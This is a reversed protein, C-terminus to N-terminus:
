TFHLASTRGAGGGGGCRPRPGPGFVNRRYYVYARTDKRTSLHTLVPCRRPNQNFPFRCGLCESWGVPQFQLQLDGKQLRKISMAALSDM